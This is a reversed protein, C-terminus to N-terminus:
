GPKSLDFGGVLSTTARSSHHFPISLLCERLNKFNLGSIGQCKLRRLAIRLTDSKGRPADPCTSGAFGPLIRSIIPATKGAHVAPTQRHLVVLMLLIARGLYDAWTIRRCM